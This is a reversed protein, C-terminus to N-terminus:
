TFWSTRFSPIVLRTVIMKKYKTMREKKKEDLVKNMIYKKIGTEEAAKASVVFWGGAGVSVSAIFLDKVVIFCDRICLWDKTACNTGFYSSCTGCQM